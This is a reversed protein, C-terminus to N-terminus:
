KWHLRIKQRIFGALGEIDPFMSQDHINMQFLRQDIEPIACNDIDFIRYWDGEPAMMKELSQSFTLDQACNLLFVGQQSALRPNFAPPSAVCVCGQRHVEEKLTRPYSLSEAILRQLGDIEATISDRDYGLDAFSLGAMHGTPKGERKRRLREAQRAVATFRRNVAEADIAWVRAGCESEPISRVCKKEEPGSRACKKEKEPSVAFHLAVFPSHTFDLLRTPVAYHQMLALWSIEDEPISPASLHMRARSKFESLVLLELAPWRMSKSRAEREIVPELEYCASKLGRFVWGTKIVDGEREITVQPPKFGELAKSIDTWSSCRRGQIHPDAPQM